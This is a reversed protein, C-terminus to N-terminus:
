SPLANVVLTQDSSFKIRDNSPGHANTPVLLSKLFPRVDSLIGCHFGWPWLVRFTCYMYKKKKVPGCRSIFNLFEKNEAHGLRFICHPITVIVFIAMNPCQPSCLCICANDLRSWRHNVMCVLARRVKKELVAKVVM